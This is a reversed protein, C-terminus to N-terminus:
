AQKRRALEIEKKEVNAILTATRYKLSDTKQVVQQYISQVYTGM